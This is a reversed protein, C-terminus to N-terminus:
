SRISSSFRNDEMSIPGIHYSKLIPMGARRYKTYFLGNRILSESYVSVIIDIPLDMPMMLELMKQMGSKSIVYGDFGCGYGWLENFENHFFRNNFHLLDFETPMNIVPGSLLRADDEFIVLFDLGKKLGYEYLTKHSAAIGIEGPMLPEPIDARKGGKPVWDPYQGSSLNRTDVAEWFAIKWGFREARKTFNKRRRDYKPDNLSICYFEIKKDTSNSLTNLNVKRWNSAEPQWLGMSPRYLGLNKILFRILKHNNILRKKQAHYLYWLFRIQRKWKIKVSKM